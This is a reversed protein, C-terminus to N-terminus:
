TLELALPVGRRESGCGVCLGASQWTKVDSSSSADNKVSSSPVHGIMVFRVVSAVEVPPKPHPLRVDVIQELIRLADVEHAVIYPKAAGDGINPRLCPKMCLVHSLQDVFVSLVDVPCGALRLL